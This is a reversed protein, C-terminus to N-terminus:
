QQKNLDDTLIVKVGMESIKILDDKKNVTFAFKNRNGVWFIDSNSVQYYFM